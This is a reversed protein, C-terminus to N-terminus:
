FYYYSAFMARMLHVPDTNKVKGKPDICGYAARTYEFEFAFDFPLIHFRIRPYCKFVSSLNNDTTYITSTEIGTEPDCICPIINKRAGLNKVIGIFLGPEIKKNINIDMWYSLADTNAYTRHDTIPAISEIAFGSLLSLNNANQAFTLQQRIEFANFKTTAFLTAQVSNIKEHAKYGTDTEIRPKLRLFLVGGGIYLNNHNDYVGRAALMPVKSNRLYISDTGEPGDNAFQQQALASLLLQKNGHVFTYSIQPNRSNPTIPSGNDVSVTPPFTNVISFPHWFQGVLLESTPWTMQFLAHWMRFRNINFDNGFADCEIFAFTKAHLIKPGFFEGRLRTDLVLMDHSGQANIDQCDADYLHEAGFLAEATDGDGISQRNEWWAAYQIYGSVKAKIPLDNFTEFAFPNNFFSFNVDRSETPDSVPIHIDDQQVEERLEEQATHTSCAFLAAIYLSFYTRNIYM